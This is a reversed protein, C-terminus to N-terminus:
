NVFAQYIIYRKRNLLILTSGYIIIPLIYALTVPTPCKNRGYVSVAVNKDKGNQVKKIIGKKEENYRNATKSLKGPSDM